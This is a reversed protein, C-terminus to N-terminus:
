DIVSHVSAIRAIGVDASSAHRACEVATVDKAPWGGVKPVCRASSWTSRPAAATYASSGHRRRSGSGTSGTTSTVPGDPATTAFAVTSAALLSAASM